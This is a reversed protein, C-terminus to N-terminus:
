NADEVKGAPVKIIASFFGEFMPASGRWFQPFVGNVADRRNSRLGM